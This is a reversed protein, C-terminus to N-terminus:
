WQLIEQIRACHGCNLLEISRIGGVISTCSSGDCVCYKDSCMGPLSHCKYEDEIESKTTTTATTTTTTNIKNDHVKSIM